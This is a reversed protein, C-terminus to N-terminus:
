CGRRLIDQFTSDETTTSLSGTVTSRQRFVATLELCPCGCSSVCPRGPDLTRLLRPSTDASRRSKNNNPRMAASASITTKRDTPQVTVVTLGQFPDRIKVVTNYGTTIYNLTQNHNVQKSICILLLTHGYQQAIICLLRVAQLLPTASM